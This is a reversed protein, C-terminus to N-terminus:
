EHASSGGTAAILPGMFAAVTPLGGKNNKESAIDADGLNYKKTEPYSPDLSMLDVM